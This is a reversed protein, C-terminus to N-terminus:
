TSSATWIRGTPFSTTPTASGARCKQRLEDIPVHAPYIPSYGSALLREQPSLVRPEPLQRPIVTDANELPKSPNFYVLNSYCPSMPWVNSV